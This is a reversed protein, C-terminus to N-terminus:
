ADKATMKDLKQYLEVVSPDVDQPNGQLALIKSADGEVLIKGSLFAQMVAQQDRTVFAAKATDYDVTVTLEPDDIHNEEIVTTGQSTDIHGELTDDTGHPIETVVVNIRTAVPADPLDAAHEERLERAADIWEPSLFPYSTM